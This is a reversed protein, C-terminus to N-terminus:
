ILFLSIAIKVIMIFNNTIVDSCKPGSSAEIKVPGTQYQQFYGNHNYRKIDLTHTYIYIIDLTYIHIYM